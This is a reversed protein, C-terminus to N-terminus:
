GRGKQEYKVFQLLKGTLEVEKIAKSDFGGGMRKKLDEDNRM